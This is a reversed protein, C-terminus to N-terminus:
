KQKNLKQTRFMSFPEIEASGAYPYIETHISVQICNEKFNSQLQEEIGQNLHICGALM